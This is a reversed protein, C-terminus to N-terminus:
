QAEEVAYRRRPLSSPSLVLFSFVRYFEIGMVMVISASNIQMRTGQIYADEIMSSLYDNVFLDRCGWVTQQVQNRVVSFIKYDTDFKHEGPIPNGIETRVVMDFKHQAMRQIHFCNVATGVTPAKPSALFSLISESFIARSNFPPINGIAPSNV